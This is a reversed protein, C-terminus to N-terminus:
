KFHKKQWIADKDVCYGTEEASNPQRGHSYLSMAMCSEDYRHSNIQESAAEYQSGFYGAMEDTMWRNFIAETTTSYFDFYYFSGGVLNWALDKVQDRTMGCAHLYKDSISQALRSEDKVAIFDFNFLRDIKDVLIMAPDLWIVKRFNKKAEAIAHPKFGYLSDYFSKSTEPLRNYFFLTNAEPYIARISELLRKQQDLYQQGFAVSVFVVDKM